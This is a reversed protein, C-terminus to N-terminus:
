KNILCFDLVRAANSLDTEYGRLLKQIYVDLRAKNAIDEETVDDIVDSNVDYRNDLPPFQRGIDPVENDAM